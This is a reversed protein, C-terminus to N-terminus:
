RRAEAVVVADVERDDGPGPGADEANGRSRQEANAIAPGHERNAFLASVLDEDVEALGVAGEGDDRAAEAFALKDDRLGGVGHDVARSYTPSPM